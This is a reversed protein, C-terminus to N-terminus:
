RDEGTPACIEDVTKRLRRTAETIDDALFIASVVAIGAIGCGRLRPLNEQNIGGIAVTPLPIEATIARLREPPVSQADAKTATPFVAGIGLYDAGLRIANQAEDLTHVSIGLIKGPGLEGRAAASLGDGQGLHVGAAGSRRAIDLRDNIILPVHYRACIAAFERAKDLLADDGLEKERLQVATAGGELAKEAFDRQLVPLLRRCGHGGTAEHVDFDNQFIARAISRVVNSDDVVLILPKAGRRAGDHPSPHNPITM